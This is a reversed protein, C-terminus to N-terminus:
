SRRTPKRQSVLLWSDASFREPLNRLLMRMAKRRLLDRSSYAGSIPDHAQSGLWRIAKTHLGASAAWRRLRSLSFANIGSARYTRLQGFEGKGLIKKLRIPLQEFNPGVTILVGRPALRATCDALISVPHEFLHLLNTVLIVDFERDNLARLSEELSGHIVALGRQEAVSGIVSDLPLVTVLFGAAQLATEAEGSGCGISLVTKAGMPILPFIEPRPHEYFGKSWRANQLSTQPVGLSASPHNGEAIQKLIGIQLDFDAHSIGLQGVYRNPRHHILFGEPDSIGIVKRFGCNTYPDTAATCLMDYRGECPARLFGGSAICRKLQKQTLLYFAAHDNSFEAVLQSGRTRVSDPKWHFPGHFGSFSRNGEADLEYRLYGAIENDALFPTLELFANINRETVETDDESYIFLDYKEVNDVFIKKHAFPLSWPNKSPLGVAVTVDPGLDKPANSVVVVHVDFAMRHYAAIISKLHSLNKDGYSALTVLLRLRSTIAPQAAGM